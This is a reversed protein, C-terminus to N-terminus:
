LDNPVNTVDLGYRWGDCVFRIVRGLSDTYYCVGDGDWAYVPFGYPVVFGGGYWIGGRWYGRGGYGWGGRGYGGRGFGGVRGGRGAFGGGRGGFGGGHGGGGRGGANEFKEKEMKINKKFHNFINGTIATFSYKAEM